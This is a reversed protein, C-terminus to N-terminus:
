GLALRSAVWLGGAAIAPGYPIRTRMRDRLTAEGRAAPMPGIPAGAMAALGMVGGTLATVLLLDVALEPGAFLGVSALLKVDGGGFMGAAFATAGLAFLGVACALSLGFASLPLSGAALAGAGTWIVFLIAIAISVVNGIRLSRLDQWAAAFLLVSLTLLCAVQLLVGLQPL